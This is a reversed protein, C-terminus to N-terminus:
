AHVRRIDANKGYSWNMSMVGGHTTRFYFWGTEARQLEAATSENWVKSSFALNFTGSDPATWDRLGWYVIYAAGYPVTISDIETGDPQEISVGIDAADGYPDREVVIDDWWIEIEAGIASFQCGVTFATEKYAFIAQYPDDSYPYTEDAAAGTADIPRFDEYDWTSPEAGSADWVRVRLLYRKVELRWAVTVGPAYWSSMDVAGTLSHSGLADSSLLHWHYTQGGTNVINFRLSYADIGVTSASVWARVDTLPGPDADWGAPAVGHTMRGSYSFQDYVEIRAAGNTTPPGDNHDALVSGANLSPSPAPRCRHIGVSGDMGTLGTTLWQYGEPTQEWQALGTGVAVTRSFPDNTIEAAEGPWRACHLSYAHAAAEGSTGSHILQEGDAEDLRVFYEATSSDAKRQYDGGGGGLGLEMRDIPAPCWTFKGNDDGGDAGDAIPLTETSATFMDPLQFDPTDWGNIPSGFYSALNPLLVVQDLLWEATTGAQAFARIYLTDTPQADFIGLTTGVLDTVYYPIRALAGFGASEFSIMPDFEDPASGAIGHFGLAVVGAFRFNTSSKLTDPNTVDWEGPVRYSVLVSYGMGTEIPLASLPIELTDAAETYATFVDDHISSAVTQTDRVRTGTCALADAASTLSGRAGAMWEDCKLAIVGGPYVKYPADAVVLSAM